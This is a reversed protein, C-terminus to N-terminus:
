AREYILCKDKNVSEVAWPRLTGDEVIDVKHGLLNELDIHMGAIKLLGIRQSRDYQVLIDVDSENTQEGRSYSGFLWAKLVPQTKFYDAVTTKIM